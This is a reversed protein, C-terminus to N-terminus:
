LRSVQWVHSFLVLYKTQHNDHPPPYAVKSAVEKCTPTQLVGSRLGSHVPPFPSPIVTCIMTLTPSLPDSIVDVCPRVYTVWWGKQRDSGARGRWRFSAKM